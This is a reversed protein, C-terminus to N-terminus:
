HGAEDAPGGFNPAAAPSEAMWTAAEARQDGTPPYILVVGDRRADAGSTFQDQNKM